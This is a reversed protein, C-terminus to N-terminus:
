IAGYGVKVSVETIVVDAPIENVLPPGNLLTHEKGFFQSEVGQSFLLKIGTIRENGINTHTTLEISQLKIRRDLPM